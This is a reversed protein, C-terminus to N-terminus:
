KTKNQWEMDLVVLFSDNKNSFGKWAKNSGKWAKKLGKWPMQLSKSAQEMTIGGSMKTPTNNKKRRYCIVWQEGLFDHFLGIIESKAIKYM